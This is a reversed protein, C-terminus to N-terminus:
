QKEIARIYIFKRHNSKLPKPLAVRCVASFLSCTGLIITNVSNKVIQHHIGELLLLMTMVGTFSDLLNMKNSLKRKKNSKIAM